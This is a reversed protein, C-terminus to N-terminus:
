VEIVTVGVLAAVRAQQADLTLLPARYRRACEIVFGDYAYIGHSVAIQLAREMEIGALRVPIARYAKAAREVQTITLRGQRHAASLANGVEWELSAPAILDEGWAGALLADRSPEGLARDAPWRYGQLLRPPLQSQVEDRGGQPEQISWRAPEIMLWSWSARPRGGDITHIRTPLQVVASTSPIRRRFESRIWARM